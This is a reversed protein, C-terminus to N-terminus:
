IGDDSFKFSIKYAFSSTEPSDNVWTIFNDELGGHSQVTPANYDNWVVVEITELGEDWTV